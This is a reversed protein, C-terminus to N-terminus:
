VPITEGAIVIVATPPTNALGCCISMVELSVVSTKDEVACCVLIGGGLINFIIQVDNGENVKKSKDILAPGFVIENKADFLKGLGAGIVM